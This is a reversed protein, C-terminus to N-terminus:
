NLKVLLSILKFSLTVSSHCPLKFSDAKTLIDVLVPSFYFSALAGTGQTKTPTKVQQTPAIAASSM